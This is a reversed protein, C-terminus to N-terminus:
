RRRRDPRAPRVSQRARGPVELSWFQEHRRAPRRLVAGRLQFGAAPATLVAHMEPRSTAWLLHTHPHARLLGAVAQGDEGTFPGAAAPASPRVQLLLPAQADGWIIGPPEGAGAAPAQAAVLLAAEDVEGVAWGAASVQARVVALLDAVALDGPPADVLVLPIESLALAVWSGTEDVGLLVGHPSSEGRWVPALVGRYPARRLRAAVEARQADGYATRVGSVSMGTARALLALSPAEEVFERAYAILLAIHEAARARRETLEALQELLLGAPLAGGAAQVSAPGAAIDEDSMGDAAAELNAAQESLELRLQERAEDLLERELELRDSNLEPNDPDDPLSLLVLERVTQEVDEPLRNEV